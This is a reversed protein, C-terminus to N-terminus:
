SPVVDVDSLLIAPTTSWVPLKQGGKACWGAGGLVARDGLAVVSDLLDSVRGRLQFAGVRGVLRGSELSRGHPFAILFEGSAPDLRGWAAEGVYLDCGAALDEESARGPLLELHLSRPVPPLHRGQRRAAGPILRSSSGTWFRDALPQEVVGGRLLWRRLVSAGEDDTKRRLGRPGSTPDDLLDLTESGMRLGLAAEPSGGQSLTDVELAHAVAEHLFVAAASPGLLLGRKGAAPPEAGRSRFGAALRAAVWDASGEALDPLLTGWAGWSTWVDCSFFHESECDPALERDVVRSWRRHCRLRVKKDFALRRARLRRDLRRAFQDLENRREFDPWPLSEVRPPRVVSHGQSRTVRRLARLFADSDLRDEVGLWTKRANVLRLALGEERVVRAQPPGADFLVEVEERREFFAEVLDNPDESLQALSRAVSTSDLDLFDM